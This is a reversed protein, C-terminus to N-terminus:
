KGHKNVSERIAIIYFASDISEFEIPISQAERSVRNAMTNVGLIMNENKNLSWAIIM